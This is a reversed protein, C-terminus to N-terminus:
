ADGSSVPLNLALAARRVQLRYRRRVFWVIVLLLLMGGLLMAVKVAPFVIVRIKVMSSVGHANVITVTPHCICMLPPNWTTSIDRTAGRPVTFDPFATSGAGAVKLPATGRFDRHVTGVNTVVATLKIPGGTAFGSGHLGSIKASDDTPGPTTIYMPAAIGRNIKINGGSKGAPVLFVLAMQHDGPEAKDPISVSATVTQSTGPEVTFKMPTVTLWTSASYPAEAQLDLSGDPKALFNEKAVTVTFPATGRNIVLVKQVRGVDKASVTLRTPSLTMSFPSDVKPYTTTVTPASDSVIAAPPAASSNPSAQAGFGGAMSAAACIALSTAFAISRHRTVM